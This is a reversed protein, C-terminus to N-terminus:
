FISVARRSFNKWTRSSTNTSNSLLCLCPMLITKCTFKEKVLVSKKLVKSLMAPFSFLSNASRKLLILPLIFVTVLVADVLFLISDNSSSTFFTSGSRFSSLLYLKYIKYTTSFALKGDTQLKSDWSWQDSMYIYFLIFWGQWCLPIPRIFSQLQHKMVRTWLQNRKECSVFYCSFKKVRSM